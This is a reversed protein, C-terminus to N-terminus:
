QNRRSGATRAAHGRRHNPCYERARNRSISFIPRGADPISNNSVVANANEPTIIPQSPAAGNAACWIAIVHADIANMNGSPRDIAAPIRTLRATPAPSGARRRGIANPAM